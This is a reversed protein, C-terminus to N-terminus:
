VSSVTPSCFAAAPAAALALAATAASAVAARRTFTLRAPPVDASFFSTM